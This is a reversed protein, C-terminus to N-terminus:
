WPRAPSAARSALLWPACISAAKKAHVATASCVAPKCFEVCRMNLSTPSIEAMLQDDETTLWRKRKGIVHEIQIKVPYKDEVNVIEEEVITREYECEGLLWDKWNLVLPSGLCYETDTTEHWRLIISGLFFSAGWESFPSSDAFIGNIRLTFFFLRDTGLKFALSGDEGGTTFSIASLNPSKSWEVEIKSVYPKYKGVRFQFSNLNSSFTM